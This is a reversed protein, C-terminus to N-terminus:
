RKAIMYGFYDAIFQTKPLDGPVPGNFRSPNNRRDNAWQAPEGWCWFRFDVIGNRETIASKLVFWHNDEPGGPELDNGLMHSDCAVLIIDSGPILQSAHAYNHDESGGTKATVSSFLNTARLWRALEGDSSGAGWEDSPVGDYSFIYNNADRLASMMMWEAIATRANPRLHPTNIQTVVNDFNQALLSPRPRVWEATGVAAAGGNFLQVAFRAVALPDEWLWVNFFAAEGCLGNGTQDLKDPDTILTLLRDAVERRDLTAHWKGAQTQTRFRNILATAEAVATPRDMRSTATAAPSTKGGFLASLADPISTGLPMGVSDNFASAEYGPSGGASGGGGGGSSAGSDDIIDGEGSGAGGGGGGAPGGGATAGTGKREDLDRGQNIRAGEGSVGGEKKKGFGTVMATKVIDAAVQAMAVANRGAETTATLTGTTATGALQQTGALGSMDRFNLNTLASLAAGIGAPDPLNTPNVINLTSPGLQGPMLNEPLARSETSVPALEPPTLPAPSDQWNWFRTIDLKEASNSRGLVAEAFVGDTPIPVMRTDRVSHPDLNRSKLVEGWSRSAGNADSIGSAETGEIPARLVIYNGAVSLVKPEVQDVLPKGQWKFRALLSVVAASGLSRFIQASYHARNANLHAKLEARRNATDSRFRVVAFNASATAPTAIPIAPSTFRRGRFGLQLRLVGRAAVAATTRVSIDALDGLNVPRTLEVIPVDGPLTMNSTGGALTGVTVSAVSVGELQIAVLEVEDPYFLSNSQPRVVPCMVITSGRVVADDNSLFSGVSIAPMATAVAARAMAAPGASAAAGTAVAATSATGAAPPTVAGAPPSSPAPKVLADALMPGLVNDLLASRYSKAPQVEISVTPDLLLDRARATLAARALTGRYSDIVADDSFDVLEIPVFLVREASQVETAIRYLQVVEYYQITLAHMHNYNAVIRTSVQQHESESVERVATARRNRVLSSHQETRDNVNQTMSATVSRSGLSWSTSNADTTTSAGQYSGGFSGGILAGYVPVIASIGGGIGGSESSSHVHSTSGGSQLENAVANQVESLSRDHATQSVLSEGEHISESARATTSRAWDIVAIRTAEGPALALSHVMQGLTIGQAYWSQSFTVQAGVAPKRFGAGAALAQGLSIPADLEVLNAPDTGMDLMVLTSYYVRETPYEGFRPRLAETQLDDISVMAGATEGLMRRAVAQPPWNAFEAITAVDLAQKLEASQTATLGGLAELPLDGIQDVSGYIADPQLWDRPVMGYRSAIDGSRGAGAAARAAAFVSAAGLDFISFIGISRLAMGAAASVGLLETAPEKLVDSLELEASGSRLSESLVANM